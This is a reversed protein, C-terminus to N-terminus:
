GAQCQNQPWPPALGCDVVGDTDKIVKTIDTIFISEGIERTFNFYSTLESIANNLTEFKNSELDAIISFEVGINLIKADLIDITDNIM